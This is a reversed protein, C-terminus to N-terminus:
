SFSNWREYNYRWIPVEAIHAVVMDFNIFIKFGNKVHKRMFTYDVHNARSLGDDSLHAEYYPPKLAEIVYRNYFCNTHLYPLEQIGTKGDYAMGRHAFPENTDEKFCLPMFGSQIHRDYIMPGIIDHDKLLPVMVEFYNEPYVQDVDMKVFYDCDSKLFKYLIQNNRIVDWPSTGRGIEVDCVARIKLFSWFFKTPIRDQSNCIGIFLKMEFVCLEM